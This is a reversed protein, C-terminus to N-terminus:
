GRRLSMYPAGYQESFSSSEMFSNSHAGNGRRALLPPQAVFFIDRLWWLRCLRPPPEFEFLINSGGGRGSRTSAERSKKTDRGGRRDLLPLPACGLENM